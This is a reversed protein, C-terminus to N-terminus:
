CFHSSVVQSPSPQAPRELLYLIMNVQIICIGSRHLVAVELHIKIIFEIQGCQLSILFPIRNEAELKDTINNYHEVM